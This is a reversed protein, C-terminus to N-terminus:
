AGIKKQIAELYEPPLVSLLAQLTREDFTNEQINKESWGEFRQYALKCAAPDGDQARKFLGIDALSLQPQYRKRREKLGDEGIKFLDEPTFHKYLTPIKINCIAAM